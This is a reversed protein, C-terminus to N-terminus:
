HIPGDMTTMLIYFGGSQLYNKLNSVDADNFCKWTRDHPFPYSLLSPSNPEVTAPKPNITTNINSNCFRILNPLSTPNAYWDGGGGYKVL